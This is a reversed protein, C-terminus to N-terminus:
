FPSSRKSNLSHWPHALVDAVALDFGASETPQADYVDTPLAPKVFPNCYEAERQNCHPIHIVLDLLVVM